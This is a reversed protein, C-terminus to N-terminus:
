QGITIRTRNAEIWAVLDSALRRACRKWTGTTWPESIAVFRREYTGVRVRADIYHTDSGPVSVIAANSNTVVTGGPLATTSSSGTVTTVDFTPTSPVTGRGVIYVAVRASGAEGVIQIAKQRRLANTLDAISDLIGRDADAFGDADVAPGVYVPIRGPPATGLFAAVLAAIVKM